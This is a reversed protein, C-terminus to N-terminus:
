RASTKTIREAAAEAQAALAGPRKGKGPRAGTEFPPEKVRQRLRQEVWM